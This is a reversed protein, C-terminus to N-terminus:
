GGAPKGVPAATAAQARAILGRVAEVDGARLLEIPDPKARVIAEFFERRDEYTPLTAKAWGRVDNLMEALRAYPEGFERAIEDRMRKALAPSAGSTSIAIAIPGSRTIAPVIFNCLPPVDAVNVLMNRQEADEFIRVNTDTDDTSAVCIFAGDLDEPGAYAREHWVISGEAALERLARIATPAILTVAAGCALLKETKDLGIPGGGIVVARRGSLRLCAFYSPVEVLDRLCSEDCIGKQLRCVCRNGAYANAPMVSM